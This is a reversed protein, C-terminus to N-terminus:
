ATPSSKPPEVVPGGFLMAGAVTLDHAERMQREILAFFGLLQTALNEAERM